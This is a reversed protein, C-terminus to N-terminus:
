ESLPPEFIQNTLRAPPPEEEPGTGKEPAVQSEFGLQVLLGDHALTRLRNIRRTGKPFRALDDYLRPHEERTMEFVMRISTEGNM